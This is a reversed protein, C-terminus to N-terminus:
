HPLDVGILPPYSFLYIITAIINNTNTKTLSLTPYTYNFNISHMADGDETM